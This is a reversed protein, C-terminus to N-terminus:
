LYITYLTGHKQIIMLLKSFISKSEMFLLLDSWDSQLNFKVSLMAFKISLYKTTRSAICASLNSKMCLKVEHMQEVRCNNRVTSKGM